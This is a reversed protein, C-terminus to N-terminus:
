ATGHGAGWPEWNRTGRRAFCNQRLRGNTGDGQYGGAAVVSWRNNPVMCGTRGTSEPGEIGGQGQPCFLEAKAPWQRTGRAGATIKFSGAGSHVFDPFV